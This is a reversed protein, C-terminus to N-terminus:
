VKRKHSYLYMTKGPKSEIEFAEVKKTKYQTSM